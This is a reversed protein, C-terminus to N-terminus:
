RAIMTSLNTHMLSKKMNLNCTLLAYIKVNWKPVKTKGIDRSM